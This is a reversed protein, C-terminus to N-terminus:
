SLLGAESLKILLILSPKPKELHGQIQQKTIIIDDKLNVSCQHEKTVVFTAMLLTCVILIIRLM